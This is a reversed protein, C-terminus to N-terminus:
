KKQTASRPLPLKEGLSVAERTAPLWYPNHPNVLQILQALPLTSMAPTSVLPKGNSTILCGKSTKGWNLMGTIALGAENLQFHCGLKDIPQFQSKDDLLSEEIALTCLFKDKLLSLLTNSVKGATAQLTGQVNEIRAGRWTLNDLELTAVAQLLDNGIWSPMDISDIHGRFKGRVESHQAELQVIATMTANQWRSAGPFTDAMLWAPMLRQQADVIMQVKGDLYREISLRFPKTDYKAHILCQRMGNPSVRLEGRVDQLGWETGTVSAFRLEKFQWRSNRINENSLWIRATQAIAPLQSCNIITTEVSISNAGAIELNHLEFMPQASQLNAIRVRGLSREFPRPATVADVGVRVHLESELAHQWDREQWPRHFYAVWCLTMLMPVACVLVFTTRCVKRQTREHLSFM